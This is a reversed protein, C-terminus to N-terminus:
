TRSISTLGQVSGSVPDSSSPAGVNAYQPAGSAELAGATETVRNWRIVVAFLVSRV